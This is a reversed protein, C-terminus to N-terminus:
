DAKKELMSLYSTTVTDNMSYGLKGLEADILKLAEERDDEKDVMVELELYSGLGEVEDVCAAVYESLFETRMKIVPRVPHFKLAELIESMADFDEVILEIEKRTMSIDDLKPGKYTLLTLIDEASGDAILPLDDLCEVKRIRLAEDTTRFDRDEANFYVDTERLIRSQKYGLDILKASIEDASNIKLKVEVEILNM